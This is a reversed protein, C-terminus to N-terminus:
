GRKEDSKDGDRTTTPIGPAKPPTQQPPPQTKPDTSSSKTLNAVNARNM